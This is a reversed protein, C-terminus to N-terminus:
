FFPIFLNRLINTDKLKKFCCIVEDAESLFKKDLTSEIAICYMGAKKASKIGLPANEIVVCEEPITKLKRAANLYPEPDPKGIKSDEGSIIVDFKELFEKPVTKNLKEKPSASVIAIKVKKKLIDIIDIVGPYFSVSNNLLYHNNKLEVIKSPEEEIRYKNSILRAIETLKTGELPYYDEEKIEINYKEFAKKWALFNDKMTDALTGDFDFLIAKILRSGM